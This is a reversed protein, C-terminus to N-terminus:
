RPSMRASAPHGPVKFRKGTDTITTGNVRLISFDQDPYNGVLLYRGDPTFAGGGGAIRRSRHRQDEDSEQRRHAAGFAIWQPPLFLGAQQPAPWFSPSRLTVKPASPLGRRATASWWAISSARRNRRSTSSASPISAATPAPPM